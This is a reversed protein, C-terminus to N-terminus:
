GRAAEAADRIKSVASRAAKSAEAAVAGSPFPLKPVLLMELSLQTTEPSMRKLRYTADFRRVNGKVMRGEIVVEDPSVQRPPDFRVVVWITGAGKLIPIRLYVDTKKGSKGVVRAQEFRPIMTSYRAFDTTVRTAVELPAAVLVRGGGAQTGAAAVTYREAKAKAPPEAGATGAALAFAGVLALAFIRAKM